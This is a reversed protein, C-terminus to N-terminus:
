DVTVRVRVTASVGDATACSIVHAGPTPEWAFPQSGVTRGTPAGDVFWWLAGDVVNGAVKCVIMQMGLGPVMRFESDDQPSRISLREARVAEGTFARVYADGRSVVVGGAVRRHRTCLASSSANRLARGEERKPCEPAAPMGSEACVERTVVEPPMAYWPGNDGPYLGRALEWAYPAAAIAGVVSTDGFGNKHGCWVGVVYEPNWAVTWADRFASSTGTKWAFRSIKVDAAHGLASQSREDGSLIDSVLWCAGQSFVRAPTSREVALARPEMWTGGRAICGYAGVLEVLTVEANGIALGLGFTEDPGGLNRCGLARLVTGFRPVGLRQLLQVFPLNLSLVLADSLKVEGRHTADFNSPSYGHYSKPVDALREDPTVLGRDMAAAALFPKLTSGAPRPSVATNVQGADKSFYDGSCALAVVVATDVRMVVAAASYGNAAARNVLSTARAQVDADLTTAFDGGALGARAVRRAAWDCFFPADFPRPARKIEPVSKSAGERQEATIMGLAYMRDLVYERRAIARDLHRDPRFRSPSQVMGAFLAAEGIGLDRARKGFWGQAAAEVGVLNSGFPARNLYQSLIWLKDRALETKMARFAEVYKWALNRAHPRILRTAQMTITSAGSVRRMSTVNQFAARLVSPLNVGSHRFFRKDESAVIAKVIWDNTSAAYYPRCDVDGPGLSVRLVSGANDRLVVGGPYSEADELHPDILFWSVAFVAASSAATWAAIRRVTAWQVRM